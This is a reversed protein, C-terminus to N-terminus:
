RMQRLLEDFVQPDETGIVLLIVVFYIIMLINFVLGIICLIRGAKLAGANMYMVDPNDKVLQNDQKSIVLGIIALILGIVGYCMCTLISLIGLVLAGVANKLQGAQPKQDLAEM